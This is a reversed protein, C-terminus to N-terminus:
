ARQVGAASHLKLRRAIGISVFSAIVGVLGAIWYHEVHGAADRAIIMGGVLSALGMAASQVSANLVMFTGRLRPLAASTIIAMGPIMRGSMLAFFATSVILVLPLPAPPLLTTAMLPLSVAAALRSFTQVKGLRDTMRGFWRATLLTVAGGVLYLLPIDQDSLGVNTQMYITIFPIVTFGTFMMVASLAFARWHNREVLVEGIGRWIAPRGEQLHHRLAPLTLWAGLCFLACLGAIAFFTAHWGLWGALWLGMPVGAVTSVSFASMVIGMARGRREFPVVDAVITQALASLVGGFVGAAVRAAMLVAYSGALGCALTALAFLGYLWLLLSRRDFRDVYTAALLGSVGASLTYASVLLGFQADTIGFLRTFQPGLPMMIMFDLIHTFQVGAITLLLWRERSRSLAAASHDAPTNM